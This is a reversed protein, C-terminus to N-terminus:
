RVLKNQLTLNSKFDVKMLHYSLKNSDMRNLNTSDITDDVIPNGELKVNSTKQTISHTLSEVDVVYIVL